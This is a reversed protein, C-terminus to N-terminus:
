GGINAYDERLMDFINYPREKDREWTSQQDKLGRQKEIFAIVDETKERYLYILTPRLPELLKM